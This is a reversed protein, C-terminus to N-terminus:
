ASYSIKCALATGDRPQREGHTVQGDNQAAGGGHHDRRRRQANGGTGSARLVDLALQVATALLQGIALPTGPHQGGINSRQVRSHPAQVSRSLTKVLALALLAHQQLSV